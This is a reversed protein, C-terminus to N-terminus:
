HLEASINQLSEPQANHRVEISKVPSTLFVKEDVWMELRSGVDIAGGEFPAGPLASGRVLAERPETLLSGGEILSRGTRPDLLLIRYDSNLTRLLITDYSNLNQLIVKSDPDAAEDQNRGEGSSKRDRCEVCLSSAPDVELVADEITRGCNSCIGYSGSMLRDLADDVNRLRAHLLEQHYHARSAPEFDKVLVECIDEREGHLLNWVTGGKGGIPIEALQITHNENM